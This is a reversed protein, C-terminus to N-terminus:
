GGGLKRKAAAARRCQAPVGSADATADAEVCRGSRTLRAAAAAVAEAEADAEAAALAAAEADDDDGADGDLGADFYAAEEIPEADDVSAITAFEEVGERSRQTGEAAGTRRSRRRSAEAARKSRGCPRAPRCIPNLNSILRSRGRRTRRRAEGRSQRRRRVRDEAEREGADRGSDGARSFARSPCAAPTGRCGSRAKPPPLSRPRKTLPSPRERRNWNSGRSRGCSTSRNAPRRRAGRARHAGRAARGTGADRVASRRNCGAGGPVRVRPGADAAAPLGSRSGRRRIRASALRGDLVDRRVSRGGPRERDTRVRGAPGPIRTSPASRRRGPPRCARTSRSADRRCVAERPALPAQSM